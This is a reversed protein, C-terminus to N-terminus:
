WPVVGAPDVAPDRHVRHGLGGPLPLRQVDPGHVAVVGQEGARAEDGVVAVVVGVVQRGAHFAAVHVDQAVARDQDAHALPGGRHRRFDEGAGQEGAALGVGDDGDLQGLRVRHHVEVRHHGHDVAGGEHEVGVDVAVRPRPGDGAAAVACVQLDGVVVAQPVGERLRQAHVLDGHQDGVLVDPRGLALLPVVPVVVQGDGGAHDEAVVAVDGGVGHQALVADLHDVTGPLSSPRPRPPGRQM